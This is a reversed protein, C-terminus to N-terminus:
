LKLIYPNIFEITKPDILLEKTFDNIIKFIELVKEQNYEPIKLM